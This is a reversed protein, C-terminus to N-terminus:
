MRSVSTHMFELAASLEDLNSGQANGNEDVRLSINKGSPNKFSLTFIYKPRDTAVDAEAIAADEAEAIEEETADDSHELSDLDIGRSFEILGAVSRNSDEGIEDCKSIYAQVIRSDMKGVRLVKNYYRGAQAYKFVKEGFELKTWQIGEEAMKAKGADSTFWEDAAAVIVAQEISLKFGKKAATEMQSAKLNFGKQNLALKVEANALFDKEITLLETM